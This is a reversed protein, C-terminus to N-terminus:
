NAGFEKEFTPNLPLVNSVEAWRQWAAAMQEVRDPHESALNHMETRDAEIDYLEWDGKAHKAVLKWKGDRIARNGEHEFFLPETRKLSKGQLLPMLSVGVLPKTARDEIESPFEEGSLDVCTAMLDILHGPTPVFDSQPKITTPWSAILPTSIGGEHVYHKYERFPTNSVNAWNRGYAIFTEAPGPMVDPGSRVPQGDLTFAGNSRLQPQDVSRPDRPKARDRKPKARRGNNEACAGNDALFLILTKERQGTSELADVIRGINQDMLDIQAAYVEMCRAEWAKDDADAWSQPAPSLEWDSDVLGMQKMREFRQARIAEYGEDYKGRYKAIAGEPAHLPWHPATFAVYMFFPKDSGEPAQEAHENIYRIAHDGIADTYYYSESPYDPDSRPTIPKNERVLMAPDYFSGSGKITGYFRDFGRQRPWNDKPHHPKENITVHWKGSMYTAYGARRLVEAITPTDHSLDARYGPVHGDEWTMHGVGAQHQYVGTLLSARTPCCRATNYFQSLRMGGSALADIHPTEIEGGYCGIDSYGMDDAMMIVINPRQAAETAAVLAVSLIITLFHTPMSKM